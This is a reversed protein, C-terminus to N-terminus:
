SSDETSHRQAGKRGSLVRLPFPTLYHSLLSPNGASPMGAPSVWGSEQLAPPMATPLVLGLAELTQAIISGPLRLGSKLLFVTNPPFFHKKDVGRTWFVNRDGKGLERLLRPCLLVACALLHTRGTHWGLYAGPVM